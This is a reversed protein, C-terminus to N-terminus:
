NSNVDARHVKDAGIYKLRIHKRYSMVTTNEGQSHEYNATNKLADYM